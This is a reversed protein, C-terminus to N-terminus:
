QVKNFKLRIKSVLDCGILLVDVIVLQKTLPERFMKFLTELLYILFVAKYNSQVLVISKTKASFEVIVLM